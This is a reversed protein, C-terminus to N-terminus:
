SLVSWLADVAQPIKHEPLRGFGLLLGRDPSRALHLPSLATIGVGRAAATEALATDDAQGPLPLLLQMGAAAASVRLRPFRATLAQLLLDRRRRYVHRARVIHREYEGSTLLDALALQGGALHWRSARGAALRVCVVCGIVLM